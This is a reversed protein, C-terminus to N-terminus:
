SGFRLIKLADSNVLGGGVRLYAFIRVHPKATYPDRLIRISPMDVITYAERMDGFVISKSNAAIDPLDEFMVAPYGLLMDQEGERLGDVWIPRGNADRLKRVDAATQRNMFFKAGARYESKLKAILDYLPGVDDATTSNYSGFGGSTGTNVHQLVGWDRDDDDTTNSTYDLFGRPKAIGDGSVHAAGEKRAFAKAIRNEVIEVVNEGSTDILKQTLKPQSYVEHLSISVKEFAIGGTEPRGETEGVWEAEAEGTDAILELSDGSTLPVYDAHQRVPSHEYIKQIIRSSRAPQVYYGGDPDSGVSLSNRMDSTLAQEGRLIYANLAKDYAKFHEVTASDVNDVPKGIMAYFQCIESKIDRHPSVSQDSGVGLNARNAVMEQEDLRSKLHEYGDKLSDFAEKQEALLQEISM